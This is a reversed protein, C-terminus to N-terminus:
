RTIDETDAVPTDEPLLHWMIALIAWTYFPWAQPPTYVQKTWQLSARWLRSARLVGRVMDAALLLVTGSPEM